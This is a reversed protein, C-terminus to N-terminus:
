LREVESAMQEALRQRKRQDTAAQMRARLRVGRASIRAVPVKTFCRDCVLRWEEGGDDLKRVVPGNTNVHRCANCVWETPQTTM